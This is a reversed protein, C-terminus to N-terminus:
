TMNLRGVGRGLLHPPGLMMPYGSQAPKNIAWSGLIAGFRFFILSNKVKEAPRTTVYNVLRDRIPYKARSFPVRRRLEAQRRRLWQAICFVVM